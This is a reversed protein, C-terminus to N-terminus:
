ELGRGIYEIRVVVRLKEIAAQNQNDLVHDIAVLFAGLLLLNAKVPGESVRPLNPPLNRSIM